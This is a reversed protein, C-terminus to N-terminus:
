MRKLAVCSTQSTQSSEGFSAVENHAQGANDVLKEQADEVVATCVLQDAKITNPHLGQSMWFSVPSVPSLAGMGIAENTQTRTDKGKQFSGQTIFVPSSLKTESMQLNFTARAARPRAPAHLRYSVPVAAWARM